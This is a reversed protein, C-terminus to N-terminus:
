VGAAEDGRGDPLAAPSLESALRFERLLAGAIKRTDAFPDSCLPLLIEARQSPPLAALRGAIEARKVRRYCAAGPAAFLVALIGVGVGGSAAVGLLALAPIGALLGGIFSLGALAACGSLVCRWKRM